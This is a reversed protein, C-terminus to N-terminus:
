RVVRHYGAVRAQAQPQARTPRGQPVFSVAATPPLKRPVLVDAIEELDEDSLPIERQATDAPLLMVEAGHGSPLMDSLLDSVIVTPPGSMAMYMGTLPLFRPAPTALKQQQRQKEPSDPVYIEGAVEFLRFMCHCQPDHNAHSMTRVM